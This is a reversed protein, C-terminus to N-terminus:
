SRRVRASLEGTRLRGQSYKRDEETLEKLDPFLEKVQGILDLAKATRKRVEEISLGDLGEKKAPM